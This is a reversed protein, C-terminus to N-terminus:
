EAVVVVRVVADVEAHLHLDIDYEGTQRIPGQPMRVESKAVEIGASSIADALDRPGISGFLKGEDGAKSVLSLEIDNLQEARAQAEAKREAAQAELEARQAEFAEVNEKTAPVALGYPVLYNRGYGPKVTVKDGLGGLKGINDLLIVEM